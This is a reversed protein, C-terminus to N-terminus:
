LAAAERALGAAGRAFDGPLGLLSVVVHCGRLDYLSGPHVLV